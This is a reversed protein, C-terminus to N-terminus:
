FSAPCGYPVAASGAVVSLSGTETTDVHNSLEVFTVLQRMRTLPVHYFDKLNDKGIVHVPYTHSL